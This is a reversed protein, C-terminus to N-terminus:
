QDEGDTDGGECSEAQFEDLRDSAATVEENDIDEVSGGDAFEQVADAVTNVDDEIEDPASSRLDDIEDEFERFQDRLAEEFDEETANEDLGETPDEAEDLQRLTDCFAEEDPGDDGGCAAPVFMATLALPLLLYRKV